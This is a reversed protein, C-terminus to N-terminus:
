LVRPLFRPKSGMQSRYTPNSLLVRDEVALRERLVWLNMATAAIATIWATYILPLAILELFVASYNPHRVWRYPGSTVVGLNVSNMVRTTWHDRMTLIVWLRILNAAVFLALMPYGLAPIFRRHLFIVEAGAAILVGTHLFVMAGFHREPMREVGSQAMKRHHTQSIGLELLREAGVAVLLAIYAIEGVGM